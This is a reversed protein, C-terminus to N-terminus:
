FKINVVYHRERKNEAPITMYDGYLNELYKHINGPLKVQLGEFEGESVPFMVSSKLTEGAYGKRGTPITVYDSQSDSRVFSDFLSVWKKHPMISAVTGILNRLRYRRKGEKTQYMFKQYEPSRYERYLVSVSVYSILRSCFSKIRNKLGPAYAGEIPFIDIFIGKPFPTYIDMIETNVTGKLYVKLFLNKSDHKDSPYTYEYKDGLEGASIAEILREYDKRSLAVDLDDDWPIFGKHRVSGLASGGVLMLDLGHRECLANLDKFIELLKGKLKTSEDENLQRLMSSDHAISTM